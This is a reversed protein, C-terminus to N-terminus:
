HGTGNIIPKLFSLFLLRAQREIFAGDEDRYESKMFAAFRNVVHAVDLRGNKVFQSDSAYKETLANTESVSIFYDMVRTEFIVNSVRVKGDETREMVGFMVGLAIDPNDLNFSVPVGGLLIRELLKGFSPNGLINKILDDILTNNERLLLNVAEDVGANAWELPKEDITKCLRSVLFPYGSTYYYLRESVATIDMGTPHDGEYELLMTAIEDPGFSMDINFPAAINWPSNYSHEADPRIKARLNKIDHVGALIVSQFTPTGKGSRNLYKKRLLGLFASFVSFDTARDVEDIMLVVGRGAAECFETIRDGLDDLPFEADAKREWIKALEPFQEKSLRIFNRLIGAALNELSTFYSEAGEFSMDLVFYDAALRRRLLELTTTKGYQRARNITFYEGPMIYDRVIAEIKADVNVMYHRDPNCSGTINFKRRIGLGTM